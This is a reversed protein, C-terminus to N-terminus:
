NKERKFKQVVATMDALIWAYTPSVVAPVSSPPYPQLMNQYAEVVDIEAPYSVQDFTDRNLLLYQICFNREKKVQQLRELTEVTEVFTTDELIKNLKPMSVSEPSIAEVPTLRPDYTEIEELLLSPSSIAKSIM